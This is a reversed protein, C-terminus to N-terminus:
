DCPQGLDAALVLWPGLVYSSPSIGTSMVRAAKIAPSAAPATASVAQPDSLLGDPV